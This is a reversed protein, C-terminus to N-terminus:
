GILARVDAHTDDTTGYYFRNVTAMDEWAGQAFLQAKSLKWEDVATCAYRDRLSHPTFRMWRRTTGHADTIQTTPWGLDLASPRVVRANLNSQSWWEGRPAPLILARPNTGQRQEDLAEASRTTLWGRVDFGTPVVETRPVVVDRVKSVKPLSLTGTRDELEVRVRLEHRDLDVLNGQGAAAVTKSATLALLEGLRLGTVADTEILGPGDRYYALMAQGWAQVQDHSPVEGRDVEDARTGARRAASRRSKVETYGPPALWEVRDIARAQEPTLWDQRAGWDLLDGIRRAVFRGRKATGCRQVAARLQAVTLEACRTDGAEALLGSLDTRRDDATRQKWRVARQQTIWTDVLEAVTQAGLPNVALACRQRAISVATFLAAPDDPATTERRRDAVYVVRWHRRTETPPYCVIPAGAIDVAHGRAAAATVLAVFEAPPTLLGRARGPQAARASM